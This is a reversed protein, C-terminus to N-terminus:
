KDEEFTWDEPTENKSELLITCYENFPCKHCETFEAHECAEQLKLMAEKMEKIWDM